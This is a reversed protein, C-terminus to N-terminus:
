FANRAAGMLLQFFPNAQVESWRATARLIQVNYDTAQLQNELMARRTENTSTEYERQLKALRQIEIELARQVQEQSFKQEGQGYQQMLLNLDATPKQSAAVEGAVWRNWQDNSGSPQIIGRRVGFRDADGQTKYYQQWWVQKAIQNNIDIGQIESQQKKIAQYKAIDGLPDAQAQFGQLQPTRHSSSAVSQATNDAGKGYVLNPNLGAQRLRNMQQSPDNYSNQMKWFREKDAIEQAYMERENEWAQKNLRQTLKYNVLDRAIGLTGVGGGGGGSSTSAGSAAQATAPDVPM